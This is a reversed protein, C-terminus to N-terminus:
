DGRLLAVFGAQVFHHDYTLVESINHEACIVFSICDTMSWGKDLRLKFLSFANAFLKASVSIIEISQSSILSQVFSSVKDRQYAGRQSAGDLLETLVAESTLVKTAKVAISIELAKSRLKDNEAVLAIWYSTDAFVANM